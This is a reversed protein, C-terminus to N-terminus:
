YYATGYMYSFGLTSGMSITPIDAENWIYFGIGNNLKDYVFFYVKTNYYYLM